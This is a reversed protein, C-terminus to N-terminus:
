KLTSWIVWDGDRKRVESPALGATIPSPSFVHYRAPGEIPPRGQDDDTDTGFSYVVVGDDSVRYGLPGGNIRDIPLEPLWRPSIQELSEPWNGNERRYLELAIGILAGERRGANRELQMRFSDVAPLLLVLPLYRIQDWQTRQLRDTPQEQDILQWLPKSRNVREQQSIENFMAFQEDRSAVLQNIAPLGIGVLLQQAQKERENVQGDSDFFNVTQKLQGLYIAGKYTVRGSKGYIRQLVDLTGLRESEFWNDVPPDIAAICHALNALQEDSFLEPYDRLIDKTAELLSWEIGLSVMGSVLFPEDQAHQVVRLSATLDEYTRGADGSEAALVADCALLIGAHNLVQVHGLLISIMEPPEGSPTDDVWKGLLETDEPQFSHCTFGLRPATTAERLDAIEPQHKELFERLTPDKDAAEEDPDINETIGDLKAAIDTQYWSNLLPGKPPQADRWGLTLLAKRYHPWAAEGQADARSNIVALYNTDLSPREWLMYFALVTYLVFFSGVLWCGAHLTQWWIPRGRRKARRILKAAQAVDGFETALEPAERGTELGDQFHTIMEQAVDVREGQWLRTKHVVKKITDAIEAPLDAELLLFRWDLRGNLQGRFVDRLPTFRLRRWFSEAVLAM